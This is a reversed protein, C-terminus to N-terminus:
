CVLGHMRTYDDILLIFYREGRHYKIRMTGYLNTHMLELPRSTSHLKSEFQVWSQKVFHCSKCVINELKPIKPMDQVVNKRRLKVIDDFNLHGLIKHWLWIEDMKEWTTAKKKEMWHMYMEQPELWRWVIQGSDINKSWFWRFSIIRQIRLWM